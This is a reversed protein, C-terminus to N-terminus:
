KPRRTFEAFTLNWTTSCGGLVELEQMWTRLQRQLGSLLMWHQLQNNNSETELGLNADTARQSERMFDFGECLLRIQDSWRILLRIVEFYFRFRSQFMSSESWGSSVFTITDCLWFDTIIQVFVSWHVSLVDALRVSRCDTMLDDHFSVVM